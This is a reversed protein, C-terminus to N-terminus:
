IRVKQTGEREYTCKYLVQRSNQAALPSHLLPALRPENRDKTGKQGQLDICTGPIKSVTECFGTKEYKPKRTRPYNVRGATSATPSAFAAFDFWMAGERFSFCSTLPDKRSQAQTHRSLPGNYCPCPLSPQHVPPSHHSNPGKQPLPKKEHGVGLPICSLHATTNYPSIFVAIGELARLHLGPRAALM